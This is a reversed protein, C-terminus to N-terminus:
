EEAVEQTPSRRIIRKRWNTAIVKSYQWLAWRWPEWRQLVRSGGSCQINTPTGPGGTNNSNRTTEAAKRSKQVRILFNSLHAKQRVDNRYGLIFVFYVTLLLDNAFCLALFMLITYLMIVNNLFTDLILHCIEVIFVAIEKCWGAFWGDGGSFGIVLCTHYM